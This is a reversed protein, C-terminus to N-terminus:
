RKIPLTAPTIIIPPKIIFSWKTFVVPRSVTIGEPSRVSFRLTDSGIWTAPNIKSTDPIIAIRRRFTPNLCLCPPHICLPCSKISDAKFFKGNKISWMLTSSSDVSDSACTDLFLTDFSGGLLKSQNGMTFVPTGRRNKVTFVAPVPSSPGTAAIATFTLKVSGTWTTDSSVPIVFKKAAPISLSTGSSDVIQWILSKLYTATDIASTVSPDTVFACTDLYLTDFRSGTFILRSLTKVVPPYVKPGSYIRAFVLTATKGAKNWAIITDFSEGQLVAPMTYSATDGSLAMKAGNLKVSDVGWADGVLAMITDPLNFISDRVPSIKTISPHMTDAVFLTCAALNSLNNQRDIAQAYCILPASLGPILQAGKLVRVISFKKYHDIISFKYTQAHSKSTDQDLGLQTTYEALNSDPDALVFNVIASDGFFLRISSASPVILPALSVSAIAWGTKILSDKGGNAKVIVVRVLYAGTDGPTFPFVIPSLGNVPGKQILSDGSKVFFSDVLNPLYVNVSCAYQTATKLTDTLATLSKDAQILANDPNSYPNRPQVCLLLAPIVSLLCSVINKQMM